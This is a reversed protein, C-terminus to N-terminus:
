VLEKVVGIEVLKLYCDELASADIAAHHAKIGCGLLKKHLKDLTMWGKNYSASLRMIDIRKHKSLAENVQHAEKSDPGFERYVNAKLISTDFYTNHGIIFECKIADEIFARLLPKIFTRSKSCVENTIGHVKTASEPIHKGCQNIIHYNSVGNVRWCISVIRPFKMYDVRWEAGKLPIGTTEIDLFMNM